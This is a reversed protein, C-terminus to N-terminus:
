FIIYIIATIQCSFLLSSYRCYNALMSIEEEGLHVGMLALFDRDDRKMPVFCEASAIMNLYEDFYEKIHVKPSANNNYLKYVDDM